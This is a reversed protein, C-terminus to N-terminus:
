PIRIDYRYLHYQRMLAQLSRAYTPSTAYQCRQLAAAFQDPHDRYAFARTYRPNVVLFRGHDVISDAVTRYVRFSAATPWCRGGGCETTPHTHCAVAIPGRVGNLCKIGFYNRDATSLGSAGWGSELIAQALTVSAPVHYRRASAQAAGALGAIFRSHAVAVASTARTPGPRAAATAALASAVLACATGAVLLAALVPRPLKV